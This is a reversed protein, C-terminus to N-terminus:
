WVFSRDSEPFSPDHSPHTTTSMKGEDEGNTKKVLAAIADIAEAHAGSHGAAECPDGHIFSALVFVLVGNPRASIRFYANLM